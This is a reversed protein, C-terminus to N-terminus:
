HHKKYLKIGFFVQLVSILLVIALPILGLMNQYDVILAVGWIVLAALAVLEVIAFVRALIRHKKTINKEPVILLMLEMYIELVIEVVIDM